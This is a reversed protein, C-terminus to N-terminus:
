MSCISRTIAATSRIGYINNGTITVSGLNTLDGILASELSIGFSNNGEITIAGSASNLINGTVAGAGSVRIGYRGTGNAFPGDLDGDKDTDTAAAAQNLSDNITIVANNTLNTTTGGNIQIGISGDVDVSSIEGSSVVTNTSNITVMPGATTIKLGGTNSIIINDPAGGNITGTAVPATRKDTITVDALAQSAFLLLPAAAVTAVLRKRFMYLSGRVKLPSVDTGKRHPSIADATM